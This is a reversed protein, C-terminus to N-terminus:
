SSASRALIRRLNNISLLHGRHHLMRHCNSRVIALDKLNTVRKGIAQSLPKRHHVECFSEGLLGYIKGFDFECVECALAGLMRRVHKKKSEILRRNRELRLHLVLRRRGQSASIDMTDIDLMAGDSGRFQQLDALTESSVSLVKPKQALAQLFSPTKCIVYPRMHSAPISAGTSLVNLSERNAGGVSYLQTVTFKTSGNVVLKDLTGWAFLRTCKRADAFVIPLGL